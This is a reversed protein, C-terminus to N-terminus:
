KKERAKAAAARCGALFEEPSFVPLPSHGRFGKVNNTIICDCDGYDACSIQLADEFDPCDSRLADYVNMDTVPLVFHERFLRSIVDAAHAKGAHKRLFYAANAVTLSSMYIRTDAPNELSLVEESKQKGPRAPLCTDLVVNTDIFLKM